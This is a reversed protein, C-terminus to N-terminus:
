IVAVSRIADAVNWNRFDTVPPNREIELLYYNVLHKWHTCKMCLIIGYNLSQKYWPIQPPIVCVKFTSSNFAKM